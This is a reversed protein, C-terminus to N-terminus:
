IRKLEGNLYNSTVKFGIGSIQEGSSITDKVMNITSDAISFSLYLDKLGIIDNSEPYAQVQIINNELDTSTINITTLTIEGTTYNVVGASKIVVRNNLGNTDPKVVSMIGTGSGDLNGNADKNPVDTLNAATGSQTAIMGVAVRNSPTAWQTLFGADPEAGTAGANGWTALNSSSGTAACVSSVDVVLEASSTAKVSFPLAVLGSGVMVLALFVSITQHEQRISVLSPMRFM